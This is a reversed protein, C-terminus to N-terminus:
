LEENPRSRTSCESGDVVIRSVATSAPLTSLQATSVTEGTEFKGGGSLAFAVGCRSPLHVFVASELVTGVAGRRVLDGLQTGIRVSDATALQGGDIVFRWIRGEPNIAAFVTDAEVQVALVRQMEVYDHDVRLTDRLVQCRSRVDTISQGIRLPGVSSDAIVGACNEGTAHGDARDCSSAFLVILANLAVRRHM